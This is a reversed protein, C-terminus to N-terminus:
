AKQQQEHILHMVLVDSTAYELQSPLWPRFNWGCIQWSKSLNLECFDKALSSLSNKGKGCTLSLDLLQPAPMDPLEVFPFAASLALRDASFDCVLVTRAPSFLESFLTQVLDVERRIAKTDLLFVSCFRASPSNGIQIVDAPAQGSPHSLVGTGSWEMDMGLTSNARIM